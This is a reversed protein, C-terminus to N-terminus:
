CNEEYTSIGLPTHGKGLACFQDICAKLTPDSVRGFFKRIRSSFSTTATITTNSAFICTANLNENGSNELNAQLIKSILELREQNSIIGSAAEATERISQAQSYSPTIVILGMVLIYILHNKMLLIELKTYPLLM